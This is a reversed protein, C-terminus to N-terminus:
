ISNVERVILWLAQSVTGNTVTYMFLFAAYLFLIRARETRVHPPAGRIHYGIAGRPCLDICRGCKTCSLLTRGAKVSAEDLSFTPCNTVCRGCAVCKDRDIRVEFITLKNLLSQMAGVPCFLGCHIRRRTLVPLVAILGILLAGFLLTQVAGSRASMEPSGAMENFPCMWECYLPVALLALAALVAYPMLRWRRDIEPLLPKRALRACREDCGGCFCVWSCWARGLALSAGAWIVAMGSTGTFGEGLSGPFIVARTLAAPILEFPILNFSNGDVSGAASVQLERIHYFFSLVFGGAIVTFLWARYRDTRGTKVILFFGLHYVSWGLVAMAAQLKDQPWMWGRLMGATLVFMPLSLILAKRYSRGRELSLEPRSAHKM